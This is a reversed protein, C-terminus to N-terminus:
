RPVESARYVVTIGPWRNRFEEACRFAAAVDYRSALFTDGYRIEWRAMMQVEANRKGLRDGLALQELFAEIFEGQGLM